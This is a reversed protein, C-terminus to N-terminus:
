QTVVFQKQALAVVVGGSNQRRGKQALAAVVQGTQAVVSRGQLFGLNYLIYTKGQLLVKNSYTFLIILSNSFGDYYLLIILFFGRSTM